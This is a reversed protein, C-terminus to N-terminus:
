SRHPLIDTMSDDLQVRLPVILNCRPMGQVHHNGRLGGMMAVAENEKLAHGDFKLVSSMSLFQVTIHMDAAVHCLKCAEFYQSLGDGKM